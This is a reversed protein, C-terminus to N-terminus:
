EQTQCLWYGNMERERKFNDCYENPYCDLNTLCYISNKLREKEIYGFRNEKEENELQCENDLKINEIDLVGKGLTRIDIELSIFCRESNDILIIEPVEPFFCDMQSPIFPFLNECMNGVEMEVLDSIGYLQAYQADFVIRFPESLYTKEGYKCSELEGLIRYTGASIDTPIQVKIGDNHLFDINEVLPYVNTEGLLKFSLYGRYPDIVKPHENRWQLCLPTGRQVISNAEPTIFFERSALSSNNSFFLFLVFLFITKM